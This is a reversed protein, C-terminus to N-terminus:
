LGAETMIDDAFKKTDQPQLSEDECRTKKLFTVTYRQAFNKIADVTGGKTRCAIIIINCNEKEFDKLLSDVTEGKDGHSAIGVVRGDPESLKITIGIDEGIERDLTNVTCGPYKQQIMEAVLKITPTKGHEEAGQLAIIKTM